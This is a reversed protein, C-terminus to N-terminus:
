TVIRAVLPALRDIVPAAYAVLQTGGIMLAGYFVLLLAIGTAFGAIAVSEGPRPQVSSLAGLVPVGLARLDSLTYFSRDFQTLLLGLLLGAGLGGALVMSGLLLRNPGSAITPVVPPDVVELRVRDTSSQAASAIQVSERRELLEEYSRRIVNYDRDLNVLDAQLQPASRALTDLREVESQEDRVQRELSSVAAEADVLRVLIQEYAPNPRSPPPRATVTRAGSGGGGNARLAAAVNRAAIVDPHQDTFRLRLAQLVREAEAQRPDGGGSVQASPAADVLVTPTAQQQQKLLDRRMRADQLNGRHGNLRSRAAELRSGGGTDSPLLDIYRTRFEARRREADRLQTEYTTIQAAVFNRASDMQQRGTSAALETFLTLATQVVDRALRPDEDNYSITFLNRTQLAIRIDRALSQKLRERSQADSIRQDLDTRAIIREINPTSLLTRQLLDLQGASSTDVAIGRLVQGLFADADVYLRASAQYRNPMANVFAWGVLCVVWALM